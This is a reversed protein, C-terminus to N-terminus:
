RSRQLDAQAPAEWDARAGQAVAAVGDDVVFVQHGKLRLLIALSEAADKNDDAILVLVGAPL